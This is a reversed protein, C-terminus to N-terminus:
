CDIDRCHILKQGAGAPHKLCKPVARVCPFCSFGLFDLETNRHVKLGVVKSKFFNWRRM